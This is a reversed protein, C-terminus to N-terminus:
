LKIQISFSHDSESNGIIPSPLGEPRQNIFQILLNNQCNYKNTNHNLYIAYPTIKIFLLFVKESSSYSLSLFSTSSI